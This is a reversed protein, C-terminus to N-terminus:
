WASMWCKKAAPLSMFTIDDPPDNPDLVNGIIEYPAAMRFQHPATENNYVRLTVKNGQGFQLRSPNM